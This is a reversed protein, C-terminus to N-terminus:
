EITLRNKHEQVIAFYGLAFIDPQAVNDFTDINDLDTVDIFNGRVTAVPTEFIGFTGESQEILLDMYNYFRRDAGLISVEIATGQELEKEYFYSFSYVQNKYFQDDTTLYEGFGFDFVYFNDQDEIDKFAIIIETEEEDFLTNSGQTLSDIPPATSFFTQALYVADEHEIYLSFRINEQFLSNPIPDVTNYVGFNNAIDEFEIAGTERILDDEIEEYIIIINDLKTLPVTGFFGDTLSVEIAVPTSTENMDVRILADIILRPEESPIEVEIVDECGILALLLILLFFRNRHRLYM